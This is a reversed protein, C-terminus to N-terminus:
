LGQRKPSVLDMGFNFDVSAQMSASTSAPASFSDYILFVMDVYQFFRICMFIILVFSLLTYILIVCFSESMRFRLDSIHCNLAM